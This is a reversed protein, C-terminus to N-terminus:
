SLQFIVILKLIKYGPSIRRRKKNLQPNFIGDVGDEDSLHRKEDLPETVPYM